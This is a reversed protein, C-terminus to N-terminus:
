ERGGLFRAMSIGPRNLTPTLDSAIDIFGRALAIARPPRNQADRLDPDAGARLLRQTLRPLGHLATLHLPGFGYRDQVGLRSGADLLRTLGADIVAEDGASGPEADAGLLLLLPTRGDHTTANSDAGAALLVNLLAPLQGSEPATFGYRAACHLATLGDTTTSHLDAGADLLQRCTAPFGRAAALMLVSLGGPLRHELDAGAHLLRAIIEAHQMSVAASLPTAGSQASHDLNAGREILAEALELHGGGAARILATCGHEDTADLALGLDILRLVSRTDGAVAAAPVDGARLARAPLPWGRWDLWDALERHGAALAIGLASQGDQTRLDVSAGHLLLLRLASERGLAAALHLASLGHPDRANPDAGSTALHEILRNWGLRVAQTLPPAHGPNASHADPSRALLDLACQELAPEGPSPACLCASLMRPLASPNVEIGEHQLLTQVALLSQPLRDLLHDLTTLGDADHINPDAGQALLWCLRDARSAIEPDLLLQGLQTADLLAALVACENTHEDQDGLLTRLLALPPQNEDGHEVDAVSPPLPYDPDLRKVLAWHGANVAHDIATKGDLDSVHAAVGADLLRQALPLSPTDALCALALANRGHADTAHLAANAEILTNLAEVHGGRVADLLPTHGDADPTDVEAGAALLTQIIGVHGYLAAEHLASRGHTDRSNVRAKHKLLLEVGAPDDDETAAASLLAPASEAPDPRAGHEILFKALRWNGSACAMGLPTVGEHNRAEIAAGADCLLAAVTPATSRAAHHLPTNGEPDALQPDAGNALLITVADARGHWSDRTAAILASMGAHTQNPNLGHAILARLLDLEPLVAALALLSRQDRADGPPLAHPDAGANLLELARANDGSRAATYLATTLDDDQALDFAPPTRQAAEPAPNAAHAGRRRWLWALLALAAVALAILAPWATEAWVPLAPIAALAHHRSPRPVHARTMSNHHRDQQLRNGEGSRNVGTERHVDTDHKGQSSGRLYKDQRSVSDVQKLAAVRAWGAWGNVKSLDHCARVPNAWLEFLHPPCPVAALSVVGL